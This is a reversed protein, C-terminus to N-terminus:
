NCYLKINDQKMLRQQQREQDSACMNTDEIEQHFIHILVVACKSESPQEEKCNEREPSGPLPHNFPNFSLNVSVKVYM